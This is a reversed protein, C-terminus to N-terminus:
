RSGQIKFRFTQSGAHILVTAQQPGDEKPHFRITFPSRVRGELKSQPREIIKFSKTQDGELVIRKKRDLRLLKDGNNVLVFTRSRSRTKGLKGFDTHDFPSPSEDKNAILVGNGEVSLGAPRSPLDEKTVLIQMAQEDSAKGNTVTLTVEYLGPKDFEHKFDKGGPATSKKKSQGKGKPKAKKKKPSIPAPKRVDWSYHTKGHPLISKRATFHVRLPAKGALKDASIQALLKPKGVHIQIQQGAYSNGSTGDSGLITVTKSGPSEKRPCKWSWTHGQIEGVEGARKYFVVSFGEPDIAKLPIEVTKGPKVWHDQLGLLVPRRNGAKMDFKYDGYGGGNPPIRTKKRYITLLAPNSDFRGNNAILALVTRGEPLADDWPITVLYEGDKDTTELRLKKNGYLLKWRLTIPLGQIDYSKNTSLRVKVEEGKEQIITAAKYLAYRKTGGEVDLVEFCAEPLAVDMARTIAIMRRMHELDDYQHFPLARDGRNIGAASYKEPYTYRNGVSKYCVRHRLEHDYPVDYPLAAKWVYLMAAPYLGNRKLLLKTKPPLYGGALIMKTIAMTESNSSGVSNFLTPSHAIYLDTSREIDQDGFSAHAPSCVLLDAFYLREYTQTMRLNYGNTITHAMGTTSQHIFNVGCRTMERKRADVFHIIQDRIAVRSGDVGRWNSRVYGHLGSWSSYVDDWIGAFQQSPTASPQYQVLPDGPKKPLVPYIRKDKRPATLDIQVAVKKKDKHQMSVVGKVPSEDDRWVKWSTKEFYPNVIAPRKETSGGDQLAKSVPGLLSLALLTFLKTM